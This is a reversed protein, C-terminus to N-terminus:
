KAPPKPPPPKPLGRSPDPTTSSFKPMVTFDLHEVKHSHAPPVEPSGACQYEDLLVDRSAPSFKSDSKSAVLRYDGGLLKTFEFQGTPGVTVERKAPLNSSQLEVKTGAPASGSVAFDAHGVSALYAALDNLQQPSKDKFFAMQEECTPKKQPDYQMHISCSALRDIVNRSVAHLAPNFDTGPGFWPHAAGGHCSSCTQDFVLKGKTKSGPVGVLGPNPVPPPNPTVKGGEPPPPAASVAAATAVFVAVLASASALRGVRAVLIPLRQKTSM